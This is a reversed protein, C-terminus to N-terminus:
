VFGTPYFWLVGGLSPQNQVAYTVFWGSQKDLFNDNLLYLCIFCVFISLM